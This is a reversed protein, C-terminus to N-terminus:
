LAQISGYATSGYMSVGCILCHELLTAEAFGAVYLLVAICCHVSFELYAVRLQLIVLSSFMVRNPYETCANDHLAMGAVTAVSHSDNGM